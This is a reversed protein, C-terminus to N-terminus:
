ELVLRYEKILNDTTGISKAIIETQKPSGCTGNTVKGKGWVVIENSESILKNFEDIASNRDIEKTTYREISNAFKQQLEDQRNLYVRVDEIKRKKTGSPCSNVDSKANDRAKKLTKSAPEPRGQHHNKRKESEEEEELQQLLSKEDQKQAISSNIYGISLM